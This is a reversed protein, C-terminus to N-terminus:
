EELAKALARVQEIDRSQTSKDGGALLIVLTTGRRCFYVRYSPGFSLRLESVGGGVAHGVCAALQADGLGLWTGAHVRPAHGVDASGFGCVARVRGRTCRPRRGPGPCPARGARVPVRATAGEDGGRRAGAGAGCNAGSACM